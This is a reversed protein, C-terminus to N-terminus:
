PYHGGMESQGTRHHLLYTIRMLPIQELDFGRAKDDKLLQALRQKQEEASIGCLDVVKFPLEVESLVLQLTHDKSFITRFAEHRNVVADWAQHMASRNLPGELDLSFQSVYASVDLSSHFLIGKQMGTTPYLKVLGPYAHYWEDLQVQNVDSLPFDSPTVGGSMPSRCHEIVQCLASKISQMLLEVNSQDHQLRNYSLSLALRGGSVMGTLEFLHSRQRQLSIDEGVNESAAQFQSNENVSQDFQGLYNFLIDSPLADSIGAQDASYRKLLGFGIGKNPVERLQEKITKIVNSISANSEAILNLPFISTFWGVTQTLDVSDTISERGHGELDIRFKSQGTWERLGLYLGSLLLDNIQTRYTSTCQNLLADTEASTLEFSVVESAALCNNDVSCNGVPLAPVQEQTQSIWYDKELEFGDSHAYDLLFEGWKQFSSSKLPLQITEQQQLQEFAQTMDQLIIRWSVGDVAIHHLTLLLRSQGYRGKFLVARFIDAVKLSLGAKISSGKEFLALKWENDDLQSLDHCQIARDALQQDLPIYKAKGQEVSLRLVDHRQYLAWVVERLVAFSFEEPIKLLVSQNYHNQDVFDTLLFDQQVPLLVQEGVVAEQPIALKSQLNVELALEEITQKEYLQRTTFVLGAQACRSVAQISLISDGGIAFFNDTVSVKEINLLGQWVDCLKREADTRPAVYEKTQMASNDPEPLAKRDIKGNHNLPFEEVVMFSSPVMYDPLVQELHKRFDDFLTSMHESVGEADLSSIINEAEPSLVIYAVLRVNKDFDSMSSEADPAKNGIHAVM